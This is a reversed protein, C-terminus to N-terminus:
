NTQTQQHYPSRRCRFTDHGDTGLRRTASSAAPILPPGNQAVGIIIGCIVNIFPILLGAIAGGRVFKSAGDMSGFFNSEDALDPRRRRAEGEDILGASLDADIAMLDSSCVDSSWDSIRM